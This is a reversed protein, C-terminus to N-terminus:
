QTGDVEVARIAKRSGEALYSESVKYQTTWSVSELLRM